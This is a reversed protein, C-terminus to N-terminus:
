KFVFQDRKIILNSSNFIDEGHISRQMEGLEDLERMIMRDHDCLECDVKQEKILEPPPNVCCRKVMKDAYKNTAFTNIREYFKSRSELKDNLARVLSTDAEPIKM